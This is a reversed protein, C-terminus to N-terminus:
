QAEVLGYQAGVVVADRYAEDLTAYPTSTRQRIFALLQAEGGPVGFLSRAAGAYGVLFGLWLLMSEQATLPGAGDLLEICPDGFEDVKQWLWPGPNALVGLEVLKGHLWLEPELRAKLFATRQAKLRAELKALRSVQSTRVL